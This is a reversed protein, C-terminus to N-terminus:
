MAMLLIVCFGDSEAGGAVGIIYRGPQIQFKVTDGTNIRAINKGDILATALSRGPVWFGNYRSVM